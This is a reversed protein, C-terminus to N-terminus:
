VSQSSRGRFPISKVGAIEVDEAAAAAIQDLNKPM